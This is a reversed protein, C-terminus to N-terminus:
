KITNLSLLLETAIEPASPQQAPLSYAFSATRLEERLEPRGGARVVVLRRAMSSESLL